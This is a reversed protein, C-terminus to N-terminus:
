RQGMFLGKRGGRVLVRPGCRCPQRPGSLLVLAPCNRRRGAPRWSGGPTRWVEIWWSEPSIVNQGRKLTARTHGKARSCQRKRWRRTLLGAQVWRFYFSYFRNSMGKKKQSGTVTLRSSTMTMCSCALGHNIRIDTCYCHLFLPTLAVRSSALCLVAM